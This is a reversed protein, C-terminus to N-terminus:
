KLWEDVPPVTVNRNLMEQRLRVIFGLLEKFADYEKPTFGANAHFAETAKREIIASTYVEVIETDSLKGIEEKTLVKMDSLFAFAQTALAGVLLLTVFIKKMAAAKGSGTHFSKELLRIICDDGVSPLRYDFVIRGGALAEKVCATPKTVM